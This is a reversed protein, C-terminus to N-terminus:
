LCNIFWMNWVSWIMSERHVLTARLSWCLSEHLAPIESCCKGRGSRHASVARGARLSRRAKRQRESRCSGQEERVARSVAFSAFSLIILWMLLIIMFMEDLISQVSIDIYKRRLVPTDWLWLYHSFQSDWPRGNWLGELVRVPKHWIFNSCYKFIGKVWIM